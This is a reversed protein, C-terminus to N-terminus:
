SVSDQESDCDSCVPDGGGEFNPMEENCGVCREELRFGIKVLASRLNDRTTDYWEELKYAMDQIVQNQQEHDLSLTANLLLLFLDDLNMDLAM